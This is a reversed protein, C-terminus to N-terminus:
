RLLGIMNVISDRFTMFEEADPTYRTIRDREDNFVVRPDFGGLTVEFKDITRCLKGDEGIWEVVSGGSAKTRITCRLLSPARDISTDGFAKFAITMTQLGNVVMIRVVGYNNVSYDLDVLRPHGSVHVTLTKNVAVSDVVASRELFNDRDELENKYIGLVDNAIWFAQGFAAALPDKTLSELDALVGAADTTQSTRPDLQFAFSGKRGSRYVGSVGLYENTYSGDVSLGDTLNLSGTVAVSGQGVGQFRAIRHKPDAEAFTRLTEFLQEGGPEGEFALTANAM